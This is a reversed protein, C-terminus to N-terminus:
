IVTLRGSQDIEASGEARWNQVRLSASGADLLQYSIQYEGPKALIQFQEELYAGEWIWTRETFLEQGV